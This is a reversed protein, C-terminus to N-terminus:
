IPHLAKYMSQFCTHHCNGLVVGTTTYTSLLKHLITRGTCTFGPPPTFGATSGTSLGTNIDALFCLEGSELGPDSALVTLVGM